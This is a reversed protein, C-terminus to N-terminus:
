PSGKQIADFLRDAGGVLTDWVDAGLASELSVAYAAMEPLAGDLRRRGEPSATLIVQRRDADDASRVFLDPARRVIETLSPPRIDLVEAAQSMAIGEPYVFRLVMLLRFQAPTLDHRAAIREISTLVAHGARALTYLGVQADIAEADLETALVAVPDDPLSGFIFIGVHYKPDAM